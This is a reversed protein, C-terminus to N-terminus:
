DYTVPEPKDKKFLQRFGAAAKRILPISLFAAYVKNVWKWIIRFPNFVFHYPSVELHLGSAPNLYKQQIEEVTKKAPQILEREWDELPSDMRVGKELLQKQLDADALTPLWWTYVASMGGHLLREFYHKLLAATTQNGYNVEVCPMPAPYEMPYKFPGNHLFIGILGIPPVNNEYGPIVVPLEATFDVRIIVGDIFAAEIKNEKAYTGLERARKDWYVVSTNHSLWFLYSMDLFLQYFDAVKKEEFPNLFQSAKFYGNRQRWEKGKNLFDILRQIRYQESTQNDKSLRAAEVLDATFNANVYEWYNIEGKQFRADSIRGSEVEWKTFIEVDIGLYLQVTKFPEGLDIGLGGIVHFVYPSAELYWQKILNPRESPPINTPEAIADLAASLPRLNSLVSYSDYQVTVFQQVIMAQDHVVLEHWHSQPSGGSVGIIFVPNDKEGNLHLAGEQQVEILQGHRFNIIAGAEVNLVAGSAVILTDPGVMYPGDHARLTRIGEITGSLGTYKEVHLRYSQQQDFGYEAVVKIFCFGAEKAIYTSMEPTMKANISETIEAGNEYFLYLSYCQNVPIESMHVEIADNAELWIKYWEETGSSKEDVRYLTGPEKSPAQEVIM